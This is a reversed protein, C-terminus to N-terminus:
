EGSAIIEVVERAQLDYVCKLKVHEMAGFGNQYRADDETLSIKGSKASNEYPFYSGFSYFPLEADGYRALKQAARKCSVRAATMEKYTDVLEEQSACATYDSRCSVSEEEAASSVEPESYALWGGFGIGLAIPMLWKAAKLPSRGFILFVVGSFLTGICALLLIFCIISWDM